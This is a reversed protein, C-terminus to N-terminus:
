RIMAWDWNIELLNPCETQILRQDRRLDEELLGDEWTSSMFM